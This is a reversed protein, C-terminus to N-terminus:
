HKAGSKSKEQLFARFPGAIVIGKGMGDSM